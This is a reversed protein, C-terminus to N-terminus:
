GALAKIYIYPHQRALIDTATEGADHHEIKLFAYQRRLTATGSLLGAIKNVFAPHLSLTVEVTDYSSREQSEGVMEPLDIVSSMFYRRIHVEMGIKSPILM